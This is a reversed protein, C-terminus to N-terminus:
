RSYHSIYDVGQLAPIDHNRVRIKDKGRFRPPPSFALFALSLAYNLTLLSTRSILIVLSSQWSNVINELYRSESVEGPNNRLQVSSESRQRRASLVSTCRQSNTRQYKQGRGNKSLGHSSTVSGLRRLHACTASCYIDM